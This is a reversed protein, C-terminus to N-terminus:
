HFSALGVALASLTARSVPHMRYVTKIRQKRAPTTERRINNTLEKLTHPNTKYVKVKLAYYLM